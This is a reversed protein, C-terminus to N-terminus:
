TWRKKQLHLADLSFVIGTGQLQEILSQVVGIESEKANEFVQQGVVLGQRLQFVSVVNVFNQEAEKHHVLTNALGKGDIACDDGSQLWQVQHMWTTLVAAVQHFDIQRMLRRITSYDPLAPRPLGLRQSLVQQHRNMFRELGRYGRYGSMTALLILILFTAISYRKGRSGRPDPVQAFAEQLSLM